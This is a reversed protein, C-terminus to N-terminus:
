AAIHITNSGSLKEIYVTYSEPTVYVVTNNSGYSVLYVTRGRDYQNAYLEYPFRVAIPDALSASIIASVGLPFAEAQADEDTFEAIDFLMTVGSIFSRAKASASLDTTAVFSSISDISTNAKANYDIDLAFAATVSSPTVNAKADVDSFENAQVSASVSGKTIYAKADFDIDSATIVSSITSITTHAKADVDAFDSALFTAIVSTPLATAQADVDLLDNISFSALAETVAITAKADVDGFPNAVLTATASPPIVTAKAGYDILGTYGQSYAGTMFALAVLSTTSQAFTTESFSSFGLM